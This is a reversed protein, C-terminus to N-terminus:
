LKLRDPVQLAEMYRLYRPKLALRYISWQSPEKTCHEHSIPWMYHHNSVDENLSLDIIMYHEFSLKSRQETNESLYTHRGHPLTPPPTPHMFNEHWATLHLAASPVVLFTSNIRPCSSMTKATAFCGEWVPTPGSEATPSVPDGQRPYCSGQNLQEGLCYGGGSLCRWRNRSTRRPYSVGM